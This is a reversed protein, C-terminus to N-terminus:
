LVGFIEHWIRLGELYHEKVPHKTVWFRELGEIMAAVGDLYGTSPVQICRLISCFEDTMKMWPLEQDLDDYLNHSSREHNVLPVGFTIVENQAEAIRTTIYSAWIDLHRGTHPSLFYSPIAKRSIATNQCNWPSWTGIGLAFTKPQGEKMGSTLLRRELRTLADIDPDNTWLGANVAVHCSTVFQSPFDTMWRKAPPYGRPYFQVGHVEHLTDCVNFWGTASHYTPLELEKGVISHKGICDQDKISLNDDDLMIIIDAGHQYGILNGINRRSISNLPLHHKLKQFQQLYVEQAELDVYICNKIKRCFHLTSLPTKKDGIVIIDVDCHNYHEINEAYATLFEPLYITTTVITVKM